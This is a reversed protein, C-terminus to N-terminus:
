CQPRMTLASCTAGRRDSALGAAEGASGAQKLSNAAMLSRTPPRRRDAPRALLYRSCLSLFVRQTTCALPREVCNFSPRFRCPCHCCCPLGMLMSAAATAGDVGGAKLALKTDVIESVVVLIVVMVVVVLLLLLVCCCCCLSAM